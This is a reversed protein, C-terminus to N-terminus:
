GDLVVTPVGRLRLRQRHPQRLYPASLVAAPETGTATVAVAAAATTTLTAGTTTLTTSSGAAAAHALALTSVIWVGQVQM